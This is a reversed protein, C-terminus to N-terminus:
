RLRAAAAVVLASPPLNKDPMRENQELAALAYAIHSRSAHPPIGVIACREKAGRARIGAAATKGDRRSLDLPREIHIRDCREYVAVTIAPRLLDLVKMAFAVRDFSEDTSRYEFGRAEEFIEFRAESDGAGDHSDFGKRSRPVM